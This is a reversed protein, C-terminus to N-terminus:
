EERLADTINTRIIKIAPIATGILVTCLIIIYVVASVTLFHPWFYEVWSRDLDTWNIRPSYFAESATYGINSANHISSYAYNLFIILGVVVALTTLVTNQWLMNFLLRPRTAGFARRVGCEETRRKAQLWVTGIVGLCLNLLFFLALMLSRNVEQTRGAEREQKQLHEQFPMIRSIRSFNTCGKSIVEKGHEEVFRNADIGERLRLVFHCKSWTITDPRFYISHLTTPLSKRFDEVVGAVSVEDFTRVEYNDSEHLVKFHRGVVDETGFVKIAGSRTLVVKNEAGTIQSLEQASPSGPLPRLGYTEFFLSNPSFKIISLRSTDRENICSYYGSQTEGISSYGDYIDGNLTASEVDELDTLQRIIQNQRKETMEYRSLNGVVFGNDDKIIDDEAPQWDGRTIYEGYVLRNADYGLPLSRYYLNVVAPDFVVWAVVTIIILELFLWLSGRGFSGRRVEGEIPLFKTISKIASM